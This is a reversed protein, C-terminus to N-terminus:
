ICFEILVESSLDDALVKRLEYFLPLVHRNVNQLVKKAHISGRIIGLLYLYAYVADLAYQRFVIDTGVLRFLDFRFDLFFSHVGDYVPDRHLQIFFVVLVDRIKAIESELVHDHIRIEDLLVLFKQSSSDPAYELEAVLELLSVLFVRRELDIRELGDLERIDVDINDLCVPAFKGLLFPNGYQESRDSHFTFIELRLDLPVQEFPEHWEYFIVVVITFESWSTGPFGV